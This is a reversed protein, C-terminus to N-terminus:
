EHARYAAHCSQIIFLLLLNMTVQMFQVLM